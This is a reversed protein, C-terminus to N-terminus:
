VEFRLLTIAASATTPSGATVLGQFTINQNDTVPIAIQRSCQDGGGSAGTYVTLYSGGNIYGTFQCGAGGAIVLWIEFIAYRQRSGIQKPLGLSTINLAILSTNGSYVSLYKPVVKHHDDVVELVKRGKKLCGKEDFYALRKSVPNGDVTVDAENIVSAEPMCLTKGSQGTFIKRIKRLFSPILGEPACECDQMTGGFLFATESDDLEPTSYFQIEDSDRLIKIVGDAGYNELLYAFKEQLQDQCGTPPAPFVVRETPLVEGPEPNGSIPSDSNGKQCGNIVVLKSESIEHIKFFAYKSKGYCIGVFQCASFRSPNEVYLSGAGGVKPVVFPATTKDYFKDRLYQGTTQGTEDSPNSCCTSVPIQINKNCGCSM